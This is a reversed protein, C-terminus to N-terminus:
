RAILVVSLVCASLGVWQLTAVAQHQLLWALVVTAAPYMSSLVAAVDMRTHQVGLAYFVNGGADLVGAALALRNSTLSPIGPGYVLLAVIAVVFTVSRAVLLPGFLSSGAQARAILILFLGFGIGALVALKLETRSAHREGPARTVLWIGGIAIAFGVLQLATPPGITVMAVIAPLVATLVAAISAVTAANGIALARYLSTIGVATAFGAAIAWRISSAPPLGDRSAAIVALMLVGSLASLALVQFPHSKRTALGGVFDGSGWVVASLLSFGVGLSIM